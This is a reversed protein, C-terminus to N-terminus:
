RATDEGDSRGFVLRATAAHRRGEEAWECTPDDGCHPQGEDTAFNYSCYPCLVKLDEPLYPCEFWHCARSGEGTIFDYECGPCQQFVPVSRGDRKPSTKM